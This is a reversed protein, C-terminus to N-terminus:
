HSQLMREAEILNALHRDLLHFPLEGAALVERHFRDRGLIPGYRNRLEVIERRGLSYCLQYGPNLGFRHLQNQAEELGFGCEVLLDLAAGRNIRGTASGVDILCRAARWLRRKCDVLRDLPAETYGYESLLTEVYYAWGEYFLPSEVQARIFNPLRRRTHDLLHHGPFTEHATLFRYERHLRKKLLVASAEDRFSPLNTTIFFCDEERPDDSFAACFSAASRVSQLYTPTERLRPLPVSASERFGNGQFFRKLNETELRYLSLTELEAVDPPCYDHYLEQWSRCPHIKEQWRHLAERNERWEEEAIGYIEQLSRQSGFCGRVTRELAWASSVERPVPAPSLRRLVREFDELADWVGELSGEARRDDWRMVGAAERLYRRADGIMALAAEHHGAPIEDLNAAGQRLLGPIGALRSLTREVVERPDEAPKTLAHDLGIFAIKLYLLPNHRWSRRDELEVLVGELSHELLERDIRGEVDEEDIALRALELTLSGLRDITDRISDVSLDDVRDYYEAAAKARPLFHFEDSASMVPFREAVLRFYTEATRRLSPNM